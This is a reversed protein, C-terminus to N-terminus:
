VPKILTIIHRVLRFIVIALNITLAFFFIPLIPFNGFLSNFVSLWSIARPITLGLNKGQTYAEVKDFNNEFSGIFGFIKSFFSGTSSAVGSIWASATAYDGHEAYYDEWNLIEGQPSLYCFNGYWYGGNTECEGETECFQLLLGEGCVVNAWKCRNDQWYCSVAECAEQTLCNSCTQPSYGCQDHAIASCFWEEDLGWLGQLGGYYWYCGADECEIMNECLDCFSASCDITPDEKIFDLAFFGSNESRYFELHSASTRTYAVNLWGTWSGDLAFKARSVTPYNYTDWEIQFNHWTSTSTYFITPYTLGLAYFKISGDDEFRVNTWQNTSDSLTLYFINLNQYNFWFGITGTAMPTGTRRAYGGEGTSIICLDGEKCNVNTILWDATGASWDPYDNLEIGAEYSEFDDEFITSAGALVPLSFGIILLATFFFKKM